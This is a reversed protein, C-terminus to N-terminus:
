RQSISAAPQKSRMRQTAARLVRRLHEHEIDPHNIAELEDALDQIKDYPTNQTRRREEAEREAKKENYNLLDAEYRAWTDKRERARNRRGERLKNKKERIWRQEKPKSDYGQVGPSINSESEDSSRM